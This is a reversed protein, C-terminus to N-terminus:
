DKKGLSSPMVDTRNREFTFYIDEIDDVDISRKSYFKLEKIKEVESTNITELLKKLLPSTFNEKILIFNNEENEINGLKLFCYHFHVPDLNYADEDLLMVAQFFNFKTLKSESPYTFLQREYYYGEDNEKKKFKKESKKADNTDNGVEDLLNYNLESKRKLVRLEENKLIRIFKNLYIPTEKIDGLKQKPYYLSNKQTNISIKRKNNYKDDNSYYLYARIYHNLAEHQFIVCNFSMNFIILIIPMEKYLDLNKDKADLFYISSIYVEMMYKDTIGYLGECEFPYFKLRNEFLDNLIEENNYFTKYNKFECHLNQMKEAINSRCIKKLLDKFDNFYEGYIKNKNIFRQSKNKLIDIDIVGGYEILKNLFSNISYEENNLTIPEAFIGSIEIKTSNKIKKIKITKKLKSYINEDIIDNDLFQNYLVKFYLPINEFKYQQIINISSQIDFIVNAFIFIFYKIYDIINEKKISIFIEKFSKFVLIIVDKSKLFLDKKEDIKDKIIKFLYRYIINNNNSYGIPIGLNEFSPFYYKNLYFMNNQLYEFLIGNTINDCDIYDYLNFLKYDIDMIKKNFNNITDYIYNSSINKNTKIEDLFLSYNKIIKKDNTKKIISENYKMKKKTLINLQKYNLAIEYKDFCDRLYYFDYKEVDNIPDQEDLSIISKKTKETKKIKIDEILNKINDIIFNLFINIYKECTGDQLLLNELNYLAKYYERKKQLKYFNEISQKMKEDADDIKYESLIYIENLENM